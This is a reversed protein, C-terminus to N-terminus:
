YNVHLYYSDYGDDQKVRVYLLNGLGCKMSGQFLEGAKVSKVTLNTSVMDIGTHVDGAYRSSYLTRGYSQTIRIPDYLPWNWSGTGGREPDGNDWILSTPKLLEFPDRRSKNEVVEFHLHTGTSCPSAGAIISAIRVGEEVRGVSIEKGLGAIIGQIAVLEAQAQALLSQFRKENNQTERLLQNKSAKQGALALQQADLERQLAEVEAQKVEKATKQSNYDLRSKELSILLEQDRDRIKKAYELRLVVDSLTLPTHGGLLYPSQQFTGQNIYTERVREVFIQTLDTLSYDLSTIKGTLESIEKELIGLDKETASIKAQTLAIQTDLYSIAQALTQKQGSLQSLRSNCAEIYTKLESENDPLADGCELASIPKILVILFFLSFIIACFAFLRKM